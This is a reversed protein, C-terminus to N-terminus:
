FGRKTPNPNRGALQVTNWIESQRFLQKRGGGGGGGLLTGTGISIGLGGGSGFSGFGVGGGVGITPGGGNGGGRPVDTGPILGEIIFGVAVTKAAYSSSANHNPYLTQLPIAAEYILDGADNYDMRMVINQTNTDGYTYTPIDGGFGYLQYDKKDELTIAKHSKRQPQADEMLNKDRDNHADLPYGIGIAGGYTKDGKPNIWVTMGGQVIKQAEQPSKTSMMIYLNEADNTVSYSLQDSKVFYPLPKVWEKDQGDITLPQPQWTNNAPDATQSERSSRCASTTALVVLMGFGWNILPKM